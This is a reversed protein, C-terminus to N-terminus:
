PSSDPLFDPSPGLEQVRGVFEVLCEALFRTRGPATRVGTERFYLEAFEAVDQDTLTIM